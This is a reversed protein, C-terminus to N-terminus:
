NCFVKPLGFTRAKTRGQVLKSSIAAFVITMTSIKVAIADIASPKCIVSIMAVERRWLLSTIWQLSLKPITYLVSVVVRVNFVIANLCMNVCPRLFPIANLWPNILTQRIDDLPSPVDPTAALEPEEQPDPQEPTFEIRIRLNGRQWDQGPVLISCSVGEELWGQRFDKNGTLKNVIEKVFQEIIFMQHPISLGNVAQPEDLRVVTTDTLYFHPDSKPNNM